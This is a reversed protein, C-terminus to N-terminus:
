FSDSVQLQFDAGKIKSVWDPKYKMTTSNLKVTHATDKIGALFAPTNNKEITLKYFPLGAPLGSEHFLLEKITINEKNTGRLFTLYNSAKDTIKLKNDDYLKMIGLLTGTTKSLSALDYLTTPKVNQASEYTYNGFCKDYVPKGERMVIVQCGPFAREKIGVKVISDIRSLTSSSMGVADPSYLTPASINNKALASSNNGAQDSLISSFILILILTLMKKM